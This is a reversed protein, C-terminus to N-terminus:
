FSRHIGLVASLPATFQVPSGYGPELRAPRGSANPLFVLDEQSGNVIPRVTGTAYVDNTRTPQRRDFVDFVDLTLDIERWRAALRVNAQSLMEGRGAAGRPLLYVVGLDTDGLVDRPKGSQVTLRTAASVAIGALHGRREFEFFARSGPDTPLPGVLNTADLDYETGAYLIFPDPQHPDFPGLWSGAASGILVGARLTMRTSAAVAAEFALIGTERTAPQRGDRGPNDFEAEFTVPNALVNEYGRRLSRRQWWVTAHAIGAIGIEYGVTVEDQAAPLIGPAVNYSAGSDTDRLPTSGFQIDHVVKDRAIVTPGLGAPLMVHSRGMSAWLRQQPSEPAGTGRTWVLGVRPALENSFHLRPGVWMLEWRVGANAHIEPSVEFTDEVYAATYRTRYNLRSADAYSCPGGPTPDCTGAFFREHDLHGPFLTSLREDGTFRAFTVLRTDELTAGTRLVHRGRRHTVDATSTPRDGIFDTLLGAGGSRFFGVPVPCNQIMPYPDGAGDNCAAALRPDDALEDFYIAGLQPIGAARASHAAERRVSRHWALQVRARTAPWRGRWTAIGDGIWSTRDRGAAHLTANAFMFTDRAAHGILTLAVDHPGRQWGVRAMGPVLYDITHAETTEIPELIFQRDAFDEVGDGDRDVLRAATWTFDTSAFTPAIGAAYWTRGGALPPLPGTAVVSANVDPGADVALRRLQYEFPQIPRARGPATVGAWVYAEVEHTPTGTRLQADITGGTSTRDRAAFGGATVLIGDLFTVPVRTEFNGTRPNDAPAGDITWRDELGTAGGFSVGADDRTAGVAYQAIQDHRADAIPLRLLYSAPLWTRLAYPSVEDFPDSAYACGFGHADDCRIRSAAGPQQKKLGFLDEDAHAVGSVALVVLGAIAILRVDRFM